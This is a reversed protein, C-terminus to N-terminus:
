GLVTSKSRGGKYALLWERCKQAQSQHRSLTWTDSNKVFTELDVGKIVDAAMGQVKASTNSPAFTDWHGLKQRFNERRGGKIVDTLWERCKESTVSPAFTDLHGLKQRFNEPRGGKTVDAAMGQM